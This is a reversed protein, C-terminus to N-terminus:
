TGADVDCGANRVKVRYEVPGLLQYEKDRNTLAKLHGYKDESNKYQVVVKGVGGRTVPYLTHVEGAGVSQDASTASGANFAVLASAAM